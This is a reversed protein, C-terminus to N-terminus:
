RIHDGRRAAGPGPASAAPRYGMDGMEWWGDTLQRDYREPMGLYTLIRGRTRAEIRGPAGPRYGGAGPTPSGSGPSAPYGSGSPPPSTWRGTWPSSSPM